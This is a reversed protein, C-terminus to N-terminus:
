KVKIKESHVTGDSYFLRHILLSSSLPSNVRRGSLDFFEERIVSSSPNSADSRLSPTAIADAQENSFRWADFRMNNARGFFFYVNHTGNISEMPFTESSIEVFNDSDFRLTAVAPADKSDLRLEIIGQGAIRAIFQVMGDFDDFNVGRVMFWDGANVNSVALSGLAANNSNLNSLSVLNEYAIGGCDNMQEAEQWVYPNIRKATLQAVGAANGKVSTIRPSAEAVTARNVQISRFGDAGTQLLKELYTTHYFLYYATGFKQLHTHNNSYSFGQRGPNAFYEGKYTWSDTNLPNDANVMYCMSCATPATLMKSYNEWDTGASWNTCYTYVFKGNIYNLESAEFMYPAKIESALGVTSVLDAGLQIIRANGPMLTTGTSNPNGGGFALWGNGEDDIVAGPDFPNSCDGVGSTNSTILASNRPSTWPGLPHTSTIVGVGAGSNSFYLYFHTLGDAEVRSVISPAWSAYCWSGCIDGVPITGHFTWNVMDASSLIVLSKIAGYTNNGAKDNAIFQQHDNTGFVYLRGEYEISTPDACFLFPCLPNNNTEAKVSPVATQTLPEEPNTNDKIFQLTLLTNAPVQIRPNLTEAYAGSVNTKVGMRNNTTLYQFVQGAMFPVYTILLCPAVDPNYIVISLTDNTDNIYATAAVKNTSNDTVTTKVRTYGTCFKAYHAFIHTAPTATGEPYGNNLAIEGASASNGIMHRLMNYYIYASMGNSMANHISTILPTYDEWKKPVSDLMWETMWVEKGTAKRVEDIYTLDSAGYFHNGVIDVSDCFAKSAILTRNYKQSGWGYCEPAMIKCKVYKKAALTMRIMEDTSFLCGEYNPDFDCENQMSIIDVAANQSAMYQRYRELWQAYSEISDPNISGHSSSQSSGNQEANLKFRYPPTWPTAMIIAGNKKARKIASIYNGWGSEDPSIRVRMINLGMTSSTGWLLDIKAQTYDNGWTGSMGVGGFGTIHQYKTTETVRLVATKTQADAQLFFLCALFTLFLSKTM